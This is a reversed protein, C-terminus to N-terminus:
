TKSNPLTESRRRVWGDRDLGAVLPMVDRQFCFAVDESLEPRALLRQANRSRTLSAIPNAAANLFVQRAIQASDAIGQTPVCDWLLDCLAGAGLVDEYATQEFTGSCVILLDTASDRPVAEVTAGLNLFSSVLVDRAKHCSRLARTGNTTTIIIESATVATATFERPSNGLDFAVSGTLQETIRLGEREGALLAKPQASRAAVAEDIEEVPLIATAGNWLATVMTSTARLVDFVVCTASTLDRRSLASFDAPTFLVELSKM